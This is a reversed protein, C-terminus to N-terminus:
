KIWTNKDRWKSILCCTGNLLWASNFKQILKYDDLFCITIVSELPQLLPQKTKTTNKKKIQITHEIVEDPM